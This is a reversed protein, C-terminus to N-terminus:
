YFIKFFGSKCICMSGNLLSTSTNPAVATLEGNRMGYNKVLEFVKKWERLFKSNEIYWEEDKQFFIGKDWKSNKFM